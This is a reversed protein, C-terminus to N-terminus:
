KKNSYRKLGIWHLLYKIKSLLNESLVKIWCVQHINFLHFISDGQSQIHSFGRNYCDLSRMVGTSEIHWKWYTHQELILLAINTSRWMHSCGKSSFQTINAADLNSIFWGRLIESKIKTMSYMMMIDLTEPFVHVHIITQTFVAM